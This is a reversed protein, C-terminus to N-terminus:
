IGPRFVPTENKKMNFAVLVTVIARQQEGFKNKEGQFNAWSNIINHGTLITFRWWHTTASFSREPAKLPDPALPRCAPSIESLAAEMRAFSVSEM